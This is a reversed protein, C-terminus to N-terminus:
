SDSRRPGVGDESQFPPTPELSAVIALAREFDIPRDPFADILLSPLFRRVLDSYTCGYPREGDPGTLRVLEGIQEASFGIGQFGQELVAARQAENPRQFEFINAARRKVAPDLAGVRNTCMVVLAPLHETALNDIGRILANVGARDEHHMQAFERSQALADAEDILLIVASASRGKKSAGKRATERVVNFAATLLRTMEGVAGAGRANLSLRYLTVAIREQRAVPDGFSEALSTKGTGVDGGFIFLPARNHFHEVLVVSVGHHRKAWEDLLKPNLLLRAEKTVREKQAELGVLKAFRQSAGPDPFTLVDDFLNEHDM